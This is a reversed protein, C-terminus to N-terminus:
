LKKKKVIDSSTPYCLCGCEPCEGSPMISGPDVRQELDKVAPLNKTVFIKDCNDCLSLGKKEKPRKKLKITVPDNSTGDWVHVQYQGDYYEIFVATGPEKEQPNGICDQITIELGGSGNTNDLRHKTLSMRLNVPPNSTLKRKTKM